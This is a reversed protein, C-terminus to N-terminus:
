VPVRRRLRAWYNYITQLGPTRKAGFRSRCEARIAPGTVRGRRKAIFVTVEPDRAIRGASRMEFAQRAAKLEALQRQCDPLDAYDAVPITVVEVGSIM